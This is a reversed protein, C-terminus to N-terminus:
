AVDAHPADVPALRPAAVAAAAFAGIYWLLALQTIVNSVLSLVVFVAMIGAFGIAVGRLYGERTERVGRRAVKVGAVLFWLYAALGLLGAEVYVRIFDNHPEKAESGVERVASLGSGFLPDTNLDLAQRWYEFRWVLSNGAAGSQTTTTGLDAFRVRIDPVMLAVVVGIIVVWMVARRSVFWTVIVIGVISAIWASRTYTALLAVGCAAMFWVLAIQRRPTLYRLIAAGMILIVCLYIAFPNPHSFTGKIRAFGDSYHFGSGTFYQFASMGLPIVVSIFAAAIVIRVDEESRFVQNLVAIMMAVTVLKAADVLGSAANPSSITSFAAVAALMALPMVFPSRPAREEPPQVLLWLGGGVVFVASVLAAPDILATSTESLKLADLSARALLIAAVFYTFRTVALWALGLGAAIILPLLVDSRDVDGIAAAATGSAIAAVVAVTIPLTLNGRRAAARLSRATTQTSAVPEM